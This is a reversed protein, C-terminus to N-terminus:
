ETEEENEELEDFEEKFNEDLFKRKRYNDMFSDGMIIGKRM